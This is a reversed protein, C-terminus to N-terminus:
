NTADVPENVIICFKINDVEERFLKRMKNAFIHLIANQISSAIYKANVIANDLIYCSPGVQWINNMKLRVVKM